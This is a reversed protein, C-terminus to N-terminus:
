DKENLLFKNSIIKFSIGLDYNRCVVGERETPFIKSQGEAIKLIDNIESPIQLNDALIPVTDLGFSEVTQRMLKNDAQGYPYKLNFVFLKYGDIHYKNGQIGDGAIEGQLVIFNNNGILQNLIKEINYQKAVKWWSSNDPKSLRLNRSCVGFEYKNWFMWKPNRILFYSVSQGDIKETVQYEYDKGWLKPLNQIREEDTKSFFSPFRGSKKKFFLNRTISWRKLIKIYWKDKDCLELTRDIEAQESPTLYKKVGIIDTVDQGEEYEAQPLYSIPLLLGQSLQKRLKITKIRYHREKLFDFEPKIPMISDIECYVALDGIKMEGKKVVVQWGLVFALEISDAGDIPQIDKVREIHALVRDSM